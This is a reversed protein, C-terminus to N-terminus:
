YDDSAFEGLMRNESKALDRRAARGLGLRSGYFYIQVCEAHILVKDGRGVESADAVNLVAAIGPVEGKAEAVLKAESLQKFSDAKITCEVEPLKGGFKGDALYDKEITLIGANEGTSQLDSIKAYYLIPKDKFNTKLLETAEAGASKSSATEIVDVWDTRAGTKEVIERIAAKAEYYGVAYSLHRLIIERYAGNEFLLDKAFPKAVYTDFLGSSVSFLLIIAISKSASFDYLVRIGHYLIKLYRVACWLILLFAPVLLIVALMAGLSQVFGIALFLIAVLIILLFAVMYSPIWAVFVIWMNQFLNFEKGLARVVLTLFIASIPIFLLDYASNAFTSLIFLDLNETISSFELGEGTHRKVFGVGIELTTYAVTGLFFLAALLATEARTMPSGLGKKVQMWYFDTHFLADNLVKKIKSINM